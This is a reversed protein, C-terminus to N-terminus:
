LKEMEGWNKGVKIDVIIPVSLKVTNEMTDKVIEVTKNVEQDPVEFILEDHVQMLMKAMPRESSAIQKKDSLLHSIAFLKRDITIMVLKVIEAATGQFPTNIAVREGFKHIREIQSHLEPVMRRRGYLTEVYGDKEAKSITEAIYKALGPYALFYRDILAQADEPNIKLNQALGYDSIGYLIGFNVIKATRRDVGLEEATTKHIDHNKKFAEIMTTDKSFHAAIRLEIQSYDAAILKYGKEAIFAKRIEKGLETRVPINQLNPNKSSLRGTSTDVAYNTHVRNNTDVLKPLPDLYTSKLKMLERYELISSIMPHLDSIKELDSASTSHHTKKRKIGADRPKIKLEEYLIKALQSPSNINFKHGLSDYIESELKLMKLGLKQSLNNLYNVDIKVGVQHMKTLVPELQKDIEYSNM